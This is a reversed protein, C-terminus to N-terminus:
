RRSRRSSTRRVDGRVARRRRGEGELPRHGAQPRVLLDKGYADNQFLVRSRRARSRGPSTSATSGARPATARSSASRGRTSSTTAVRVDDRGSAVFLQPVKAQNLYRAFRRTRSRGSRLQLDRLGQGARRAPRTVQVSQAANYADDVFKYDITRGNVGGRANVYKFTRTRAAPSRRTRRRRAPSRRRAARAPDDDDHDRPRREVRRHRRDRDRRRAALVALLSSPSRMPSFSSGPDLSISRSPLRPSRVGEPQPDAGGRRGPLRAHDPDPHRRVGGRAGRARRHRHRGLIPLFDPIVNEMEQAWEIQMFHIFIAGFVLPASRASAASSSASSCSSRSRSRFRTRTSSPPRSRSCRAPSARTSPASGSPSRRTARSTSAPPPQRSSATGSRGSRAASAAGFCSGRSESCSSRSDDLLPLLAVRQVDPDRDRAGQDPDDDGRLHGSRHDVQGADSHRPRLSQDRQRRRHLGRVEERRGAGRRRDRVDRARPLARHAAARPHRLPLRRHGRRPRRDPDDLHRAHRGHVPPGHARAAAGREVDPDGDHLRRDAHVRRPRALDAGHHGDAPQARAARHLLHRRLRVAAGPLRQRVRPLLFVAAVALLFVGVRILDARKM